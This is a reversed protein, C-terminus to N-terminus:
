RKIAAQRDEINQWGEAAVKLAKGMDGVARYGSFQIKSDFSWEDVVFNHIISMKKVRVIQTCLDVMVSKQRFM